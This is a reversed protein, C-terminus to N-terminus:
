RILGLAPEGGFPLEANAGFRLKCSALRKGCVDLIPDSTPQDNKDAVPGGAYGCEGSRYVWTCVNAVLQRRPLYVHAVDTLAALEFVIIRKDEGRKRAVQFVDDPFHTNADATPNGGSFNVADLYRVFTRKRTFLAGRLGNYTRAIAGIVGGINGATLTPRKQVDSGARKVGSFEIALRQYTEGQWVVDAGLENPGNHYRLVTGGLSTLDLVYMAVIAGPDLKQIDSAISM